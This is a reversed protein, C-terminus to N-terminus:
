QAFIQMEFNELAQKLIPNHEPSLLVKHLIYHESVSAPLISASHLIKSNENNKYGKSLIRVIRFEKTLESYLM